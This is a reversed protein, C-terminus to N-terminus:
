RCTACVGVLDLRHHDARFDNAGAIRGLARDLQTEVDPPVTFDRVDGCSSCILHHHHGTLDEALEYRGFEDSTVIRHVVGARELVTLNRYASSQALSRDRELLQPLALPADTAALVAVLARRGRTYRQDLGALRRAALEHLDADASGVGAVRGAGGIETTPTM